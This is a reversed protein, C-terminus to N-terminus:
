EKSRGNCSRRGGRLDVVTDVEGREVKGWALEIEVSADSLGDGRSACSDFDDVCGVAHKVFSRSARREVDM